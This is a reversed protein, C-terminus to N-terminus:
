RHPGAPNGAADADQCGTTLPSPISPSCNRGIRDSGSGSAAVTVATIDASAVAKNASRAADTAGANRRSSDLAGATTSIQRRSSPIREGDLESRGTDSAELGHLDSRQEVFPEPQERAASTSADFAM